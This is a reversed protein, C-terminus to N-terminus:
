TSQRNIKKYRVGVTIIREGVVVAYTDLYENLRNFLVGAYTQVRKKAKRDFYCIEAGRGDYIRSGYELLLDVIMPSVGRQQYRVQAHNSNTM